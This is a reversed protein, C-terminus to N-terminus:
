RAAARWCLLLIAASAEYLSRRKAFFLAGGSAEAQAQWRLLHILGSDSGTRLLCTECCM